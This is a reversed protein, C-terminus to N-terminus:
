DKFLKGRLRPTETDDGAPTWAHEQPTCYFPEIQNTLANHDADILKYERGSTTMLVHNDPRALSPYPDHITEIHDTNVILGSPLQIFM